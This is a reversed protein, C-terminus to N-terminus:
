QFKTRHICKKPATFVNKPADFGYVRNKDIYNTKLKDCAIAFPVAAFTFLAIEIAHCRWADSVPSCCFVV